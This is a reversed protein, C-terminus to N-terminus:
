RRRVVTKTNGGDGIAVQVASPRTPARGATMDDPHTQADRPTGNQRPVSVEEGVTGTLKQFFGQNLQRRIAPPAQQYAEACHGRHHAGSSTELEVLSASSM